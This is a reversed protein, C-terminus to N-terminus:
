CILREDARRRPPAHSGTQNDELASWAHKVVFIGLISVQVSAAVHSDEPLMSRIM